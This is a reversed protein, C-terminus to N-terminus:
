PPLKGIAELVAPMKHKQAIGYTDPVQLRVLREDHRWSPGEPVLTVLDRGDPNWTQTWAFDQDALYAALAEGGVRPPEYVRVGLPPHGLAKMLGAALTAEGAGKSHGTIYFPPWGLAGLEKVIGGLVAQVNLLFGAHVFGLQQHEIVPVQVAFFDVAWEQWDTTGEFAVCNVWAEGVQVLSHYAHVLRLSSQWTPIAGKAYCAASAQALPLLLTDTM